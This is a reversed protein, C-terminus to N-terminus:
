KTSRLVAFMAPLEPFPQYAASKCLETADVFQNIEGGYYVVMKEKRWDPASVRLCAVYRSENGFPKLEPPSLTAERTGVLNFPNTRLFTMLGAKYDAPFLNPNVEPQDSQGLGFSSCGALVLAALGVAAASWARTRLRERRLSRAAPSGLMMGNPKM